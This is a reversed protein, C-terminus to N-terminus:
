SKSVVVLTRGDAAPFNLSGNTQQQGTFQRFVCNGFAGFRHGLVGARFLKRASVVPINLRSKESGGMNQAFSSQSQSIRMLQTRNHTTRRDRINHYQKGFSSINEM